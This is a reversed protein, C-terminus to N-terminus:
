TMGSGLLTARAPRISVNPIQEQNITLIHTSEFFDLRINIELFECDNRQKLRVFSYDLLKAQITAVIVALRSVIIM